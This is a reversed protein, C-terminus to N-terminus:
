VITVERVQGDKWWVPFGSTMPMFKRNGRTRSNWVIYKQDVDGEFVLVGFREYLGRGGCTSRRLALSMLGPEGEMTRLCFLPETDKTHGPSPQWEESDARLCPTTGIVVDAEGVTTEVVVGRLTIHSDPGPTKWVSFGNDPDRPWRVIELKPARASLEVGEEYAVQRDVSAWSWTPARWKEPRLPKESRSDAVSVKWLLDPVFSDEWLGAWYRAERSRRMFQAVGDIAILKDGPKTIDLRSYIGVVDHWLWQPSLGDMTPQFKLARPFDVEQETFGGAGPTCQCHNEQRCEWVLEQSAFYLTRPALLREQMVWARKMLPFHFFHHDIELRAFLSYSSGTREDYGSSEMRHPRYFLGGGGNSSSAAALTLLANEYVQCMTAAERNWDDKDNQIICMSDIWIYECGLARTFNVADHFTKPLEGLPIDTTYRDYTAKTLRTTITEPPGWCHSLAFYKDVSLWGAEVVRVSADGEAGVALLRTPVFDSKSSNCAEHGDVCWSLSSTAYSYSEASNTTVPVHKQVPVKNWPSPNDELAYFSIDFFDDGIEVRLYLGWQDSGEPQVRDTMEALRSSWIIYESDPSPQDQILERVAQRAAQCTTCGNTASQYLDRIKGRVDIDEDATFNHCFRCRAM